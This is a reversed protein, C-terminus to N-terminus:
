PLQPLAAERARSRTRAPERVTIARSRQLHNPLRRVIRGDLMSLLQSPVRARHRDPRPTKPSCELLTTTGLPCLLQQYATGLATRMREPTPLLGQRQDTRSTTPRSAARRKAKSFLLRRRASPASVVRIGARIWASPWHQRPYCRRDVAGPAQGGSQARAREARRATKSDARLVKVLGWKPGGGGRAGGAFSTHYGELFTHRASCPVHSLPRVCM